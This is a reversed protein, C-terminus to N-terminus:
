GPLRQHSTLTWPGTPPVKEVFEAPRPSDREPPWRGPPQKAGVTGEDEPPTEPTTTRPDEVDSM